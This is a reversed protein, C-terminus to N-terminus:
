SWYSQLFSVISNNSILEDSSNIDNDNCEDDSIVNVDELLDYVNFYPSEAVEKVKNYVARYRASDLMDRVSIWPTIDALNKGDFISKLISVSFGSVMQCNSQTSVVPFGDTDGRVNWYIMHPVMYPRGVAAIGAQTFRDELIEHMTKYQTEGNGYMGNNNASNFQMDSVVLFWEPLEEPQLKERVAVDLILNMASEFNTSGGWPSRRVETVKDALNTSTIKHWQPTTDFTIFRDKYPGEVLSSIFIACAISVEMPTGSMSSSVDALVVGRSLTTSDKYTELISNWCLELLEIEETSLPSQVLFRSVIEHIFIQSSNLKRIGSKIEGMFQLLNERCKIRDIDDPYRVSSTKTINLFAKKYKSLCRGPVLNFKIESFKKNCMLVETTNIAVNLQSILKRYQKLVTHKSKIDPFIKSAIVYALGAKRDHSGKERPAWKAALTINPLTITSNKDLNYQKELLTKYDDNLQNAYINILHDYLAGEKLETCIDLLDRWSGYEGPILEALELMTKPFKDYLYIYMTKFIRREGKGGRPDRTQMALRILYTLYEARKDDSLNGVSVCIDDIFTKIVDDSTNRVLKFYLQTILGEVTSETGIAPCGNEGVVRDINNNLTNDLAEVLKSMTPTVSSDKITVSM